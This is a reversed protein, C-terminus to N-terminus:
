EFQGGELEEDSDLEGHREKLGEEDEENEEDEVVDFEDLEKAKPEWVKVVIDFDEDEDKEEEGDNIGKSEEEKEKEAMVKKEERFKEYTEGFDTHFASLWTLDKITTEWEDTLEEKDPLVHDITQELIQIVDKQNVSVRVVKNPLKARAKLFIDEGGEEVPIVKSQRVPEVRKLYSSMIPKYTSITDELQPLLQKKSEKEADVMSISESLTECQMRVEEKLENLTVPVIKGNTEQKQPKGIAIRDYEESAYEEVALSFAVRFVDKIYLKTKIKTRNSKKSDTKDEKSDEKLDKKSRKSKKPKEREEEENKSEEKSEQEDLDQEISVLANDIDEQDLDDLELNFHEEAITELQKSRNWFDSYQPEKLQFSELHSNSSHNSHDSDNSHNSHTSSSRSRKKAKKDKKKDVSRGRKSHKDSKESMDSKDGDSVKSEDKMMDKKKKKHVAKEHARKARKYERVKARYEKAAEKELKKYTKMVKKKIKNRKVMRTEEVIDKAEKMFRTFSAQFTNVCEDFNKQNIPNRKIGKNRRVILPHEGERLWMREIDHSKMYKFLNPEIEDKVQKHQKNVEKIKKDLIEKARSASLYETVGLEEEANPEQPNRRLAVSDPKTRKSM